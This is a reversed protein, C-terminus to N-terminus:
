RSLTQLVQEYIAEPESMRGAGTTRCAQWGTEPGVFQYGLTQRVTQVNRETVPNQWMEANMSPAVIVPTPRPLAAAVLTVMNDTLGQALRAILDASAPALVLLECWRAIGIHQADPYDDSQWVSTLVPRGTLSQLTTPGLFHTAAETMLCRVEAGQQVLRSVLSATKYCAIAGSLGVAIRRDGLPHDGSESASADAM